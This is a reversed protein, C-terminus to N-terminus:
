VKVTVLDSNLGSLHKFITRVGIYLTKSLEEATTNPYEELISRIKEKTKINSLAVEVMFKSRKSEYYFKKAKGKNIRATLEKSWRQINFNIYGRIKRVTKKEVNNITVWEGKEKREWVYTDGGVYTAKHNSLDILEELDKDTFNLFQLNVRFEDQEIM